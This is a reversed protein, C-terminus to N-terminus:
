LQSAYLVYIPASTRDPTNKMMPALSPGPCALDSKETDAAIAKDHFSLLALCIVSLLISTRIKIRTVSQRRIQVPDARTNYWSIRVEPDHNKLLGRHLVPILNDYM